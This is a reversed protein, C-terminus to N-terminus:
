THQDPRKNRTRNDVIVQIGIARVIPLSDPNNRCCDRSYYNNQKQNEKLISIFLLHHHFILKNCFLFYFFVIAFLVYSAITIPEPILPPHAVFSNVSFPSFVITRSLPQFTSCMFS